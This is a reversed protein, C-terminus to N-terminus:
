ECGPGNGARDCEQQESADEAGPVECQPECPVLVLGKLSTVVPRADGVLEAQAIVFPRDVDLGATRECVSPRTSSVSRLGPPRTTRMSSAALAAFKRFACVFASLILTPASPLTTGWSWRCTTARVMPSTMALGVAGFNDM